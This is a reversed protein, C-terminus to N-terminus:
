KTILIPQVDSHGAVELRLWYAGNPLGSADLTAEYDGDSRWENVLSRVERGLGDFLSLMVAAPQEITYSIRKMTPGNSVIKRLSGGYRASADILRDQQYCLSDARLRGPQVRGARPNGDAFTVEDLRISTVLANGHLVLFGLRVLVSDTGDNVLTGNRLTYTITALSDDYTVAQSTLPMVASLTQERIVPQDIPFLMTKNYSVSLRIEDVDYDAPIRDRLYVPVRIVSGPKADFTDVLAVTVSDYGVGRLSVQQDPQRCSNHAFRVSGSQVRLRSPTFCLDVTVQSNPLIPASPPNQITFPSAIGTIQRIDLPADGTNSITLPMCLTTGVRVSDFDIANRDLVMFPAVARGRVQFFYQQPAQSLMSAISDYVALLGQVTTAKFFRAGTGNALNTLSQIGTASIGNGLGITYIRVPDPSLAHAILDSLTLGGCGGDDGDSLLVIVRRGPLNRTRIQDITQRLAQFTCTGGGASNPVANELLTRNTTFGLSTQFGYNPATGSSYRFIAAEDHIGLTDVLRGVFQRGARNAAAIRTITTGTSVDMFDKTMMSGSTDFVMGISLPVRGNATIAVRASDLAPATVPSYCASFSRSQGPQLTFPASFSSMFPAVLNEVSQIVLPADGVNRFEIDRCKTTGCLTTDFNTPNANIQLMPGLQAMASGAALVLTTLIL